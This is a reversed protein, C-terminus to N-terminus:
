VPIKLDDRRIWRHEQVLPPSRREPGFDTRVGNSIRRDTMDRFDGRDKVITFGVEHNDIRPGQPEASAKQGQTKM